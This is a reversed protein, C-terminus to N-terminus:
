SLSLASQSVPQTSSQNATQSAPQGSQAWIESRKMCLLSLFLPLLHVHSHFLTNDEQCLHTTSVNQNIRVNKFTNKKSKHQSKINDQSLNCVTESTSTTMETTYQMPTYSCPSSIQQLWIYLTHKDAPYYRPLKEAHMLWNPTLFTYQGQVQM